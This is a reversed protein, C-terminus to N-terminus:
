RNQLWHWMWDAQEWNRWGARPNEPQESAETERPPPPQFVQMGWRWRGAGKWWPLRSRGDQLHLTEIFLTNLFFLARHSILGSVQQDRGLLLYVRIGMKPDQSCRDRVLRQYDMKEANIWKRYLLGWGSCHDTTHVGRGTLRGTLRREKRQAHVACYSTCPTLDGRQHRQLLAPQGKRWGVSGAAQSVSLQNYWSRLYQWSASQVPIKLTMRNKEAFLNALVSMKWRIGATEGIDHGATNRHSVATGLDGGGATPEESGSGPPETLCPRKRHRM